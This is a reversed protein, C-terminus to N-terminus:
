RHTLDDPHLLGALSAIILAEPKKELRLAPLLAPQTLIALPLTVLIMLAVSIEMKTSLGYVWASSNWM